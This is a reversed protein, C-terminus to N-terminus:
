VWNKISAFPIIRGCAITKELHLNESCLGSLICPLAYFIEGFEVHRATFITLRWARRLNDLRKSFAM